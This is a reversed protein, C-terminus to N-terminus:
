GKLQKTVARSYARHVAKQTGKGRGKFSDHRSGFASLPSPYLNSSSADPPSPPASTIVHAARDFEWYILGEYAVFDGDLEQRAFDGSYSERLFEYYELDIFPNQRTAAKFLAYNPRSKGLFEQYIWNRGKPTTTLWAYGSKGFQRLRGIMIHWTKRSYLAAEDGWWWSISPGRLNEPTHASRFYIESGNSLRANISGSTNMKVILDGALERFTPITADRLINYTPATIMGVNPTQIRRGGIDGSAAFIARAAGAVTKGSGIGGVFVSFRRPDNVFNDQPDYLHIDLQTM